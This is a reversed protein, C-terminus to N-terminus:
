FSNPTTKALLEDLLKNIGQIIVLKKNNIDEMFQLDLKINESQNTIWGGKHLLPGEDIDKIFSIDHAVTNRIKQVDRMYQIIKKSFEINLQEYECIKQFIQLKDEITLKPLLIERFVLWRNSELKCFYNFIFNNVEHEIEIMIRLIEGSNKHFEDIKEKM